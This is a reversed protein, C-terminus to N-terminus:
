FRYILGLYLHRRQKPLARHVRKNSNLLNELGMYLQGNSGIDAGFELNLDLLESLDRQAQDKAFYQQVFSIQGHYPSSEYRATSELQLMRNYALRRWDHRTEYALSVAMNQIVTFPSSGFVAALSSRNEFVDDYVLEVVDPMASDALLAKNKSFITTNKVSVSVPHFDQIDPNIMAYELSFDLPVTTNRRREDMKIWTYQHLLDQYDQQATHARNSIKLASDYGTDITHDFTLAPMMYLGDYIAGISYRDIYNGKLELQSGIVPKTGYLYVSNSLLLDALKVTSEHHWAVGESSFSSLRYKQDLTYFRLENSMERFDLDLASFDRGGLNLQGMRFSSQMEATEVKQFWADLLLTHSVAPRLDANLSVSRSILESKPSKFSATLGAANLHKLMFHHRYNAYADGASGGQIQIFNKIEKTETGVHIIPEVPYSLPLFAQLSDNMTSQPSYPLAKKYLFIKVQSEGTVEMDPLVQIQAQLISFALSLVM